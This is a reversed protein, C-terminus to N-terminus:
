SLTTMRGAGASSMLWVNYSVEVVCQLLVVDRSEGMYV